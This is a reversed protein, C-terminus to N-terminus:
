SPSARWRTQIVAWCAGGRSSTCVESTGDPSSWVANLVGWSLISWLLWVAIALGVLSLASDLPRAVIRRWLQAKRHRGVPLHTVSM